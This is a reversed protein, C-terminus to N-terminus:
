EKAAIGTAAIIDCGTGLIDRIIVSGAQVPAAVATRYILALCDRLKEKPVERSGVVGLRAFEGGKVKVTSTIMRQPHLYENKAYEEGRPCGFGAASLMGDDDQVTIGCSKPCVICTFTKERM